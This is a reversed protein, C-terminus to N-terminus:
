ATPNCYHRPEHAADAATKTRTDYFGYLPTSDTGTGDFLEMRDRDAIASHSAPERGRPISSWVRLDVALGGAGWPGEARPGVPPILRETRLIKIM